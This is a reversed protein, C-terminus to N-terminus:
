LRQQHVPPLHQHYVRRNRHDAAAAGNVQQEDMASALLAPDNGEKKVPLYGSQLSFALSNETRTFWKLFVTAAYERAPTSKSVVMGAGQQVACPSTGEFNPM